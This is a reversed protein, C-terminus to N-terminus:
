PQPQRAPTTLPQLLLGTVIGSIAGYLHADVIVPGGAIAASGPMAGHYHEWVLKVVLAALLLWELRYGRRLNLLLGTVFVGHLMGSLGVYWDLQPNFLLLGTGVSTCSLTMVILWQRTSLLRGFLLWILLLGALNLLLHDWGLHVFNGTLLRWIQGAEIASRQYRLVTTAAPAFLQCTMSFLCLGVPLSNNHVLRALRETTM